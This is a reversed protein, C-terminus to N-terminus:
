KAAPKELRTVLWNLNAAARRVPESVTESEHNTNIDEVIKRKLLNMATIAYVPKTHATLHSRFLM